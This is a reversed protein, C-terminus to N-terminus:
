QTLNSDPLWSVVAPNSRVLYYLAHIDSSSARLADVWLPAQDTKQMLEKRGLRNLRLFSPIVCNPMVFEKTAPLWLHKLSYNHHLLTEELSKYAESTLDANNALNVREMVENQRLTESLRLVGKNHLHNGFLNLSTLTSNHHLAQALASCGEDRIKNDALNLRELTRNSTIAAAVVSCSAETIRTEALSLSKLTTNSILGAGIMSVGENELSNQSLNLHELSSQNNALLHAFRRCTYLELDNATLNLSKLTTNTILAAAITSGCEDPLMNFGINLERLNKNFSLLYALAMGCEQGMGQQTLALKELTTNKELGVLVEPLVSALRLRRLALVRISTSAFLKEVSTYMLRQDFVSFSQITVDCLKPLTALVQVLPDLDFSDEADQISFSKLGDRLRKRLIDLFELYEEDNTNTSNETKYFVNDKFHISHLKLSELQGQTKLLSSNILRLPLGALGSSGVRLEKLNPLSGVAEFLEFQEHNSLKNLFRLILNASTITTNISLAALMQQFTESGSEFVFSRSGDINRCDLETMAPDNNHIRQILSNIGENNM